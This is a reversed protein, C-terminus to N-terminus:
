GSLGGRGSKRRLDLIVGRDAPRGSCKSKRGPDPRRRMLRCAFEMPPPDCKLLVPIAPPCRSIRAHRRSRPRRKAGRYGCTQHSERHKRQVYPQRRRDACSAVRMSDSGFGTTVRFAQRTACQCGNWVLDAKQAIQQEGASQTPSHRCWSRGVVM